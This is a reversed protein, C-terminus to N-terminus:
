ADVPVTGDGPADEHPIEGRAELIKQRRRQRKSLPVEIGDDTGKRKLSDQGDVAMKEATEGGPKETDKNAKEKITAEAEQEEEVIRYSGDKEIIVEEVDGPTEALVKQVYKDVVLDHPKLVNSCVPCTWRNNLARMKLNSELYAALGFCQLHMCTEGRVPIDVREFSLPCRLKLKNSLVCTVEEDEDDITTATGNPETVKADKAEAKEDKGDEIEAAEVKKPEEEKAEGEGDEMKEDDEHADGNEKIGWTDKLLMRVRALADEEECATTDEAIQEATRPQTRVIAFAYSSPHDDEITVTVSNMGPRLGASIDKPVDRRVHGEEPPDIRFVEAGNIMVILKTPWVQSTNDSNVKICRAFISQDEKRWAKLEPLDLNFSVTPRMFMHHRLIGSQEVIANFPDLHRIRCLPCWFNELARTYEATQLDFDQFCYTCKLWRAALAGIHGIESEKSFPGTGLKNRFAVCAEFRIGLPLGRVNVDTQPYPILEPEKEPSVDILAGSSPHAFLWKRAGVARFRVLAGTLPPVCTFYQWRVRMIGQHVDMVYLRPEKPQPPPAPLKLEGICAPKSIPSECCWRNNIFFSVMAEYEIGEELGTAITESAPAAIAGGTCLYWNQNGVRRLKVITQKAEEPLTWRVKIKGDGQPVMVPVDSAGEHIVLQMGGIQGKADINAVSDSSMSYDGFGEANRCCIEAAYEVCDQVGHINVETRSAAFSTRGSAVLAGTLDILWKKGTGVDTLQVQTAEVPPAASPVAWTVRLKGDGLATLTPSTPKPPKERSKLEEGFWGPVSFPSPESWGESNMVALVAEYEIGTECGDITVESTPAPVTSGGKPVLRGTGHDYNQLRNSGKIRLKLTSATVEPEVEPITWSIRLSSGASSVCPKEPAPPKAM